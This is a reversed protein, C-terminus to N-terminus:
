YLVPLDATQLHKNKALNQQDQDIQLNQQDQLNQPVGAKNVANAQLNIPANEGANENLNVSANKETNIGTNIDQSERKIEKEVGPM